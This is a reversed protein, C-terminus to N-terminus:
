KILYKFTIGTDIYDGAYFATDWFSYIDLRPSIDATIQFPYNPIKYEIGVIGDIGAIFKNRYYLDCNSCSYSKYYYAVHVGPGYFFDLYKIKKLNYKYIEIFGKIEYARGYRMGLVVELARESEYHKKIDVGM